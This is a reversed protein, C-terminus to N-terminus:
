TLISNYNYHLLFEVVTSFIAFMINNLLNPFLTKLRAFHNSVTINM